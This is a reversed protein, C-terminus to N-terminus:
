ISQIPIYFIQCTSYLKNRYHLDVLNSIIKNKPNPIVKRIPGQYIKVKMYGRKYQKIANKKIFKYSLYNSNNQQDYLSAMKKFFHKFKPKLKKNMTIYITLNM